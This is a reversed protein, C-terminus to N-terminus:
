ADALEKLEYERSPDLLPDTKPYGAWDIVLGPALVITDHGPNANALGVAETM